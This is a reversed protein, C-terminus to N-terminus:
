YSKKVEIITSGGFWLPKDLFFVIPFSNVRSHGDKPKVKVVFGGETHKDEIIDIVETTDGICFGSCNLVPNSIQKTFTVIDAVKISHKVPQRAPHVFEAKPQRKAM